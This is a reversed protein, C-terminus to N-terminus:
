IIISVTACVFCKTINASFAQSMKLKNFDIFCPFVNGFQSFILGQLVSSRFQSIVDRNTQSLISVLYLLRRQARVFLIHTILFKSLQLDPFVKLENLRGSSTESVKM